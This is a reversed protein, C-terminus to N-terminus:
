AAPVALGREVVLRRIQEEVAGIDSHTTDLTVADTAPKLPSVAREADRRDRASIDGLLRALNVSMGKEILQKYRRRAREEASATLFIKLNAEPFVV